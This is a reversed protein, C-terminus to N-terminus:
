AAGGDVLLYLPKGLAFEARTVPRKLAFRILRWYRV